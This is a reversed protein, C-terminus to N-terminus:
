VEEMMLKEPPSTIILYVCISVNTGVPKKKFPVQFKFFFFLTIVFKLFFAMLDSSKYKCGEAINITQIHPNDLFTCKNLKIKIIFVEEEILGPKHM